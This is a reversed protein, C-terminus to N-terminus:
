TLAYSASTCYRSDLELVLMGILWSIYYKTKVKEGVLQTPSAAAQLSPHKEELAKLEAFLNDYTEDSVIPKGDAYHQAHKELEKRLEAARARMPEPVDDAKSAKKTRKATATSTSAASKTSRKPKESVASLNRIGFGGFPSQNVALRPPGPMAM